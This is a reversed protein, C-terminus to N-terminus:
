FARAHAVQECKAAMLGGMLEYFKLVKPNNRYKDIKKPDAGIEAVAKMVEPDDFGSLLQPNALVSDITTKDPQLASLLEGRAAQYKLQQEDPPIIFAQPIRPAGNGSKASLSIMGAKAAKPKAPKSDFFGKRLPAGSQVAAVQSAMSSLEPPGDESEDGFITTM